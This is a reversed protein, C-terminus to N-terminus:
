LAVVKYPLSTDGCMHESIVKFETVANELIYHLGRLAEMNPENPSECVELYLAQSVAEVKSIIMPLHDKDLTKCLKLDKQFKNSDM